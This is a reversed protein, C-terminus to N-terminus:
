IRPIRASAAHVKRLKVLFFASGADPVFGAGSGPCAASQSPLLEASVPTGTFLNFTIWWHVRLAIFALQMTPAPDCLTCPLASPAPKIWGPLSFASLSRFADEVEFLTHCLCLLAGRLASFLCRQWVPSQQAVFFSNKGLVTVCGYSTAWLLPLMEM